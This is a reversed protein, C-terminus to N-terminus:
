PATKGKRPCHNGGCNNDRLMWSRPLGPISTSEHQWCTQRSFIRYRSRALNVRLCVGSCAFWQICLAVLSWLISSGRRAPWYPATQVPDFIRLKVSGASGRITRSRSAWTTEPKHV